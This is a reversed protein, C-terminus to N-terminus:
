KNILYTPCQSYLFLIIDYLDIHVYFIGQVVGQYNHLANHNNPCQGGNDGHRTGSILIQAGCGHQCIQSVRNAM